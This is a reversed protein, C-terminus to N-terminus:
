NQYEYNNISNKIVDFDISLKYKEKKNKYEQNKLIYNTYCYAGISLLPRIKKNFAKRKFKNKWYKYSLYANIFIINIDLIEDYDFRILPMRKNYCIFYIETNNIKEKYM